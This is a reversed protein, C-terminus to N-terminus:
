AELRWVHFAPGDSPLTLEGERLEADGGYLTEIEDMGLADASLRIPPHAARAALCLLRDDPAERLYAVADAGVFAYRIGGRALAPRSRRLEVLARYESMLPEDWSGRNNWPITRRGDEGWRGALGIEDGAFLM